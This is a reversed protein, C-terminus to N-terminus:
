NDLTLYPFLSIVIMIFLYDIIIKHLVMKSNIMAKICTCHVYYKNLALTTCHHSCESGVLTAWTRLRTDVGYTLQTQQQNEAKSQSTKRLTSRNEGRRLLWCKWIGIRDPVCLVGLHEM